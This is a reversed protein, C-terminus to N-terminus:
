SKEESQRPEIRVGLLKEEIVRLKQLDTAEPPFHVDHAVKHVSQASM